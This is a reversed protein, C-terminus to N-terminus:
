AQNILEPIRGPGVILSAKDIWVESCVIREYM